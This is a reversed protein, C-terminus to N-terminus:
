MGREVMVESLVDIADTVIGDVGMDILREMEPRENVTWVHVVRGRSHVARLMAPTVLPVSRGAVRISAPM